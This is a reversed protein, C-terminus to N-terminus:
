KPIAQYKLANSIVDEGLNLLSSMKHKVYLDQGEEAKM